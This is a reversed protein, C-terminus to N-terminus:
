LLMVIPVKESPFLKCSPILIVGPVTYKVLHCNVLNCTAVKFLILDIWSLTLSSDPLGVSYGSQRTTIMGEQGWM